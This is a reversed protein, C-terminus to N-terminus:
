WDRVDVPVVVGGPKRGPWRRVRTPEAVIRREDVAARVRAVDFRLCKGFRHGGLEHANARVWSASVGLHEAVTATDVFRPLSM